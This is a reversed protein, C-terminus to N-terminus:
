EHWSGAAPAFLADVSDPAPRKIAAVVKLRSLTIKPDDGGEYRGILIAARSKIASTRAANTRNKVWTPEAKGAVLIYLPYHSLRNGFESLEKAASTDSSQMFAEVNRESLFTVLENASEADVDASDVFASTVPGDATAPALASQRAKKLEEIKAKVADTVQNKDTIVLEFRTKDRRLNALEDVLGAYAQVSISERDETTIVVLQSRAVQRGIELQVLPYTRLPQGDDVDLRKGPNAGLLHVCLDARRVLSDVAEAHTEDDLPVADVVRVGDWAQLARSIQRHLKERDQDPTALFVRLAEGAGPGWPDEAASAAGASVSHGATVVRAPATDDNASGFLVGDKSRLYLVPTAWETATERKSRLEMRGGVVAADVPMGQLIGEYFTEAFVIAGTDSIPFQMAVVAPAKRKILATAVGAFPHAGSRVGTTGTKCANLFVLRLPEDALWMAFDEGTVPDRSGDESELLLLGVGNADFDGHGMYHVVHYEAARLQKRIEAAVPRVFAVEVGLAGGWSREIRDREEKLNLPPADKPSSMVVMIRLPARFPRPETRGLVDLARVLTTQTSLAMPDEGPGRCLLEWPLNAVEAMGPAQLDMSLRIRVGTDVSSQAKSETQVLLDRVEGQFLAEFLEVGFDTASRPNTAASRAAGGLAMGRTEAVGSVAGALDSLAFPLKLKCHSEGGGDSSARVAYTGDTGPSIFVTIDIYNKM